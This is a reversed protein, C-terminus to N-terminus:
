EVTIGEENCLYKVESDTLWSSIFSVLLSHDMNKFHDLLAKRRRDAIPKKKIKKIPPM